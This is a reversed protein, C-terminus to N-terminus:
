AQALIEAPVERASVSFEFMPTESGRGWRNAEWRARLFKVDTRGSLDLLMPHEGRYFKQPFTALPKDGWANGDASGWISVDLSQQEVIDTIGLVLLLVRTETGTVEVPAGEGKGTIITKAPVLSGEFM